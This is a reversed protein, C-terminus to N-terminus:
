AWTWYGPPPLIEGGVGGEGRCGGLVLGLRSGFVGCGRSSELGLRSALSTGLLGISLESWFQGAHYLNGHLHLLRLGAVDRPIDREGKGEQGHRAVGTLTTPLGLSEGM